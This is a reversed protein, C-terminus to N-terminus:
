PGSVIETKSATTADDAVTAKQDVVTGADNYLSFTTATEEKKNRWNKYLYNIKAALSATAAPAGQGPEAYTDTALADVVEANVQAASLNNLAAIASENADGQTTLEAIVGDTVVANAIQALPHVHAVQIILRDGNAPVVDYTEDFNLTTTGASYSSTVVPKAQGIGTGTIIWAPKDSYFNPSDVGGTFTFSSSTPTGTLTTDVLVGGAIAMFLGMTGSTLHGSIAEDLLGDVIQALATANWTVNSDSKPVKALETSIDQAYAIFCQDIKLTASTLGTQEFRIRVLGDNAGTGTHSPFLAEIDTTYIDSNVGSLTSILDWGASVWDYVFVDISDNAGNILATFEVEVAVGNSGIDYEYYLDITGASDTHEHAILNRTETDTYLNASQTGTTLTYSGASAHFAAGTSAINNIHTELAMLSAAINSYDDWDATASSSVLKAIISNDTIDTGTVSASVLHDLGLAVLADNVESQVEADWAANWPVATLGTGTAAQGDAVVKIANIDAGNDNATQATGSVFTVDVEPVGATTPTAAATGLWQAVDTQLYDTTAAAFLSDYVNANVVMFDVRIPLILSDDNILVTLFGETDSNGTTIDLTYYGDAGTIAAFGNASISTVTLPTAGGYKIIEAEDATSLSLTTVPTFGDGVAVAPGILVETNTDAKLYQM